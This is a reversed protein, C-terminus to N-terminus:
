GCGPPLKRGLPLRRSAWAPLPFDPVEILDLAPPFIIQAPEVLLDDVPSDLLM